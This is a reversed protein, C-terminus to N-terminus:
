DESSLHQGCSTCFVADDANQAGCAACVIGAVPASVVEEPFKSGCSVCFLDDPANPAGCQRCVRADAPAAQAAQRLNTGCNYCFVSSGPNQTGCAPCVVNAGAHGQESLEAMQKDFSAATEAIRERLAECREECHKVENLLRETEEDEAVKGNLEYVHRGLDTCAVLEAQQMADLEAELASLATRKKMKLGVIDTQAKASGWLNSMADLIPM